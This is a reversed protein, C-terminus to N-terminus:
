ALARKRTTSISVMMGRANEAEALAAAYDTKWTVRLVDAIATGLLMATGLWAITVRIALKVVSLRWYLLHTKLGLGTVRRGQQSPGQNRRRM